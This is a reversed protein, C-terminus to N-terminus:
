QSSRMQHRSTRATLGFPSRQNNDWTFWRPLVRADGHRLAIYRTDYETDGEVGGQPLIHPYKANWALGPRPSNFIEKYHERCVSM